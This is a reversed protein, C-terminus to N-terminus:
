VRLLAFSEGLARKRNPDFAAEFITNVEDGTWEDPTIMDRGILHTQM